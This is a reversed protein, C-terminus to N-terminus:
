PTANTIRTQADAPPGFTAEDDIYAELADLDSGITQVNQGEKLVTFGDGGSAIFSNVAVKYTTARDIPTGDAQTLSTVRQGQPLSEDYTYKLGSVQLIRRSSQNPPFQQELLRYVQDGTLEMSVVQNDFPQVAFLEGYTVEGAAIDARIGGPNMFAFQAGAFDRQADAILDGLESEGARSATRTVDESATAVVRNAIPDIKQKYGAVLEATAPDPAVGANDTNVIEAASSVVDKTSRDIKMNVADFATGLSFAQVVLKGDVRTNLVSHSHGSVVVDVEDSMQQAETVIEGVAEAAPTQTGGAHALVVITEVKQRKLEAVYRDVTESIDLYDFPAVEDPTVIRPTELTTVGIFGVDIGDKKVVKYPPLVPEGSSKYETNAAVYPFAAGPFNPDSTNTPQGDPGDKFQEGDSRQGGNILRLMEEGGEDFEHNGLTGVDFEMNNMAYVTPEDHFYSSILPSAGVMDGAHVRITREPNRAEYRDFYSDLYAAGGLTKGPADRRTTPELQGHFDNVGLLQITSTRDEPVPEGPRPKSEAGSAMITLLALMLALALTLPLLAARLTVGVM